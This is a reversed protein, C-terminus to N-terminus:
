CIAEFQHCGVRTGAVQRLMPREAVCLETAYRCRSEFMCGSPPDIRAPPEGKVVISTKPQAPELLPTAALLMCTYPLCRRRSYSQKTGHEVAHGCYMMRLSSRPSGMRTM